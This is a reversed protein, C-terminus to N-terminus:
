YYYKFDLGVDWTDPLGKRKTLKVQTCQLNAWRLQVTSLFQTFKTIDVGKLDVKASQSKQGATTVMIGSNITYSSPPIGCSGTTKDIASAYDFEASPNNADAFKLRDPDITLIEKIIDQGQNYQSKETEWNRGAAPLYIGWILLPWLAAIAPALVYYLVPNRFIDKM